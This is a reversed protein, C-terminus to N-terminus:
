VLIQKSLHPLADKDIAAIPHKGRNVAIAKLKKSGMVAGVGNHAAVHGMDTFMLAFRVMNEGAPGISLVSVARKGQGLEEKIASETSYTDKGVLHGADKLEATGDHIHLYTERDSAGQVIIADFGSSKLYTGFFGNAQSSAVGNTLAGKTVVAIAGSGEIRTGGLPGSGIFLRNEPDNWEVGPAVEDYLFKIGLSAGGISKRLTLEDILESTISRTTLDVRLIRNTYGPGQIAEM